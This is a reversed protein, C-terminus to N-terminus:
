VILKNKNDSFFLVELCYTFIRFVNKINFLRNRILLLKPIKHRKLNYASHNDMKDWFLSETGINLGQVRPIACCKHM